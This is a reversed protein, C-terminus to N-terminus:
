PSLGRLSTFERDRMNLLEAGSIAGSNGSPVSM